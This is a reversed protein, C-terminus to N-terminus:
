LYILDKWWSRHNMWSMWGLDSTENTKEIKCVLLCDEGHLGRDLMEAVGM